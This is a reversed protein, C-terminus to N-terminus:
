AEMADMAFRENCYQQLNVGRLLTAQITQERKM